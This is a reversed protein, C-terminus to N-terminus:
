KTKKTEMDKENKEGTIKELESKDIKMIEQSSEKLAYKLVDSYSKNSNNLYEDVIKYYKKYDIM